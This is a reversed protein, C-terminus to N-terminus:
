NRRRASQDGSDRPSTPMTDRRPPSMVAPVKSSAQGRTKRVTARRRTHKQCQQCTDPVGSRQEEEQAAADAGREGRQSFHRRLLLSVLGRTLQAAHEARRSLEFRSAADRQLRASLDTDERKRVGLAGRRPEDANSSPSTRKNVSIDAPAREPRLIPVGCFCGAVGCAREGEDGVGGGSALRKVQQHRASERLLPPM